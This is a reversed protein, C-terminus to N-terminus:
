ESYPNIFIKLIGLFGINFEFCIPHNEKTHISFQSSLGKCCKSLNLIIESNYKKVFFPIEKESIQKGIIITQSYIEDPSVCYFKVTNKFCQIELTSSMNQLDKCANAFEQTKEVVSHDYKFDLDDYEICQTQEINISSFNTRPQNQHNIIIDLKNEKEIKLVITDKKKINKIIKSFAQSSVAFTFEQELEFISFNKKFLYVDFVKKNNNKNDDDSQTLFIGNNTLRFQFQSLNSSLLDILIKFCYAEIIECSFIPKKIM